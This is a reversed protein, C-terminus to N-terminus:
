FFQLFLAAAAAAACMLSASRVESSASSADEESISREDGDVEMPTVLPDWYLANCSEPAQEPSLSVMIKKINEGTEWTVNGNVVAGTSACIFSLSVEVLRQMDGSCAGSGGPATTTTGGGTSDTCQSGCGNPGLGAGFLLMDKPISVVLKNEAVNTEAMIANNVQNEVTYDGTPGFGHARVDVEANLGGGTMPTFAYILELKCKDLTGITMTHQLAARAQEEANRFMYGDITLHQNVVQRVHVSSMYFRHDGNANCSPETLMTISEAGTGYVDAGNVRMVELNMQGWSDQNPCPYGGDSQHMSSPKKIGLGVQGRQFEYEVWQTLALNGSTGGVAYCSVGMQVPSEIRDSFGLEGNSFNEAFLQDYDLCEQTNQARAYGGLLLLWSLGKLIQAM